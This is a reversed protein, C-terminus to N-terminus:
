MTRSGGGFFPVQVRTVGGNGDMERLPLCGQALPSAFSPAQKSDSQLATPSLM